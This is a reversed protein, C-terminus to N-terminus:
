LRKPSVFVRLTGSGTELRKWEAGAPFDIIALGGTPFKTALEWLDERSGAGALEVALAHVGPNHGILLCSQVGADVRALVELMGPPDALYLRPEFATRPAAGGLAALVLSLTERTRVADSCLVLDPRFGQERLYTGMRQADRTGRANLPREHDDLDRDDWSSKAHRLLALTLM